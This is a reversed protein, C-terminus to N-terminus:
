RRHGVARRSAAQAAKNANFAYLRRYRGPTTNLPPGKLKAAAGADRRIKRRVTNPRAASTNRMTNGWRDAGHVPRGFMPAAKAKTARQTARTINLQHENIRSTANLKELPGKAIQKMKRAGALRERYIALDTKAADLANRDYDSMGGKRKRLGPM